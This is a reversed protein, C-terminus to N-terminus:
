NTFIVIMHGLDYFKKITAPVTPSLWEWDDVDTPFTKGGCPNVITWDYDFAVMTPRFIAEKINYILPM